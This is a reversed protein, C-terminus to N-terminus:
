LPHKSDGHNGPAGRRRRRAFVGLLLAGIPAADASTGCGCGGEKPDDVPTVTIEVAAPASDLAGDDALYTFSDTGNFDPNPVYTILAGSSTLSGHAPQTVSFRLAQGEVDSGVLTIAVPADEQTTYSLPQVVPADNVATVAVTVTAAASDATGDNAVYTFSDAGWYDATPTYTATAGSISVSGHAPQAAVAFTLSDADIDTAALTVDVPSDEAVTAARAQAAPLDNVAAVSISVTAQSSLSGDSARFTFADSGQYNPSPAYGVVGGGKVLLSGHLPQGVISYSIASGEADTASLTVDVGGDEPVTVSQPQAFPADNVPTVTLSVTTVNSTAFGDSASFTFSDAGNFNAAPTYTRDAGSGSLTGHAPPTVVTFTLPDGDGDTAAFKVAVPVDEDTTASGPQAVPPENTPVFAEATALAGADGTGGAVIVTGSALRTATSDSRADTLSGAPTWLGTRRDYSEATALYVVTGLDYDTGGVVLVKDASLYTEAHHSRARALSGTSRWAGTHPDYLEATATPGLHYEGGAVLVEGTGLLTATHFARGRLLSGTPSWTGTAPDYIEASDLFAGNYGGAVLVRGDALATATHGDRPIALSGTRSWTFTDIDLVEASALAGGAGLGGVVMVKRPLDVAVTAMRATSLSGADFWAGGYFGEASALLDGGGVGGVVLAAGLDRLYIAAHGSRAAKMSGTASWTGSTPDFLEASALETGSASGGSVLIKVAGRDVVTSAGLSSRATGMPDVASWPPSALGRGAGTGCLPPAASSAGDPSCGLLSAALTAYFLTRM